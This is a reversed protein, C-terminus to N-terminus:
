LRSKRLTLLVMLRLMLSKNNKSKCEEEIEQDDRTKNDHEGEDKRRHLFILPRLDSSLQCKVRILAKEFLCPWLGQNTM